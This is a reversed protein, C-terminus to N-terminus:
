PPRDRRRRVPNAHEAPAAQVPVTDRQAKGFVVEALSRQVADFGVPREGILLECGEIAFGLAEDADDARAFPQCFKGVTVEVRRRRRKAAGLLKPTLGATTQADIQNGDPFRQLHALGRPCRM